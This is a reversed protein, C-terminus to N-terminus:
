GRNVGAAPQGKEENKNTRATGPLRTNYGEWIRGPAKPTNTAGIAVAKARLLNNTGKTPLGVANATEVRCLMLEQKDKERSM